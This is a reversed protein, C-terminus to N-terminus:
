SLRAEPHAARWERFWADAELHDRFVDMIDDYLAKVNAEPWADENMSGWTDLLSWLRARPDESGHCPLDYTARRPPDALAVPSALQTIATWNLRTDPAM